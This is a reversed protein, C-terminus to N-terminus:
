KWVFLHTGDLLNPTKKEMFNIEWTDLNKFSYILSGEKILNERLEKKIPPTTSNSRSNSLSM